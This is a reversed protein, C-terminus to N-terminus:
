KINRLGSSFNMVQILRVMMDIGSTRAGAMFPKIANLLVIRNDSTDNFRDLMNKVKVIMEMNEPTLGGSGGLLDGLNGLGNGQSGNQNSHKAPGPEPPVDSHNAQSNAGANNGLLGSLMDAMKEKAGDQSLMNMLNGLMDNNNAM